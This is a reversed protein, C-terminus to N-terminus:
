GFFTESIIDGLEFTWDLVLPFGWFFLTGIFLFLIGTNIAETTAPNFSAFARIILSILFCFLIGWRLANEITGFFKDMQAFFSNAEECKIPSNEDSGECDMDNNEAANVSSFMILLFFLTMLIKKMILNEIKQNINNTNM